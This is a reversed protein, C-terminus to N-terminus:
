FFENRRTNDNEFKFKSFLNFMSETYHICIIRFAVNKEPSSNKKTIILLTDQKNFVTINPQQKSSKPATLQIVSIVVTIFAEVQGTRQEGEEEPSEELVEHLCADIIM